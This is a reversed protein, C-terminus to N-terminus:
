TIHKGIRQKSVPEEIAAHMNMAAPINKDLQQRAISTQEPEV